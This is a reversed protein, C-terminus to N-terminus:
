EFRVNVSGGHKDNFGEVESMINISEQAKKLADKTLYQYTTRRMFTDVSTGSSFRTSGGTPLIHNTGSYYDGVAVPAMHGLFLSGVNKIKDLYKFPDDTLLQMHEPAYNNSFAIAEDMDKVLLILGNNSISKRKIESRGTGSNIDKEIENKVADALSLSPTVLIAEAMEEHEAQSLLDFATWKPNASDDAAILVESPGAMSDIQILGQSFLYTKAATVFINGPGVIINAKKVTETGYGTAAIGQAGGSKVVSTVGAIKCIACIIDPINGKSDPPTIVTINEVGAIKAPIVGMLVSSPYAAKGGPVYIGASEIAHHLIGLRTGDNRTYEMNTKRQKLHFEEINERAKTFASIIKKDIKKYGSEIEDIDATIKNLKIKDFKETYKIVAEDGNLMVDKVIPIVTDNLIKSFDDGFRNFLKIKEEKTLDSLKKIKIM